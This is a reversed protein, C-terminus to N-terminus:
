KVAELAARCIAEPVPNPKNEILGSRYFDKGTLRFRRLEVKIRHFEATADNTGSHCYCNLKLTFEKTAMQEVVLWADSISTSFHPLNATSTGDQCIWINQYNARPKTEVITWGMVKEAVLADLSRM